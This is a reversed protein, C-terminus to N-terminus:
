GDARGGTGAATGDGAVEPRRGSARWIPPVGELAAADLRSAIVHGEGPRQMAPSAERCVAGIRRPCRSEFPCGEVPGIRSPAVGTQIRRRYGRDMDAPSHATREGIRIAGEFARLGTLARALSSKGCGSEGVLGLTEGARLALDVRYM